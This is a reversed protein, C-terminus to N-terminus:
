IMDLYPVSTKKSAINEVQKKVYLIISITFLINKIIEFIYTLFWYKEISHYEISNALINFFFSCSLYIMIGILTWFWYRDYIYTAKNNDHFQEYFAYSIYIFILISEIGIPISDLNRTKSTLFYVVQFLLFLASLTTIIQKFKSNQVLLWILCSFFFYEIFTYITTYLHRHHRSLYEDFFLFLFFLLSYVGIISTFSNRYKYNVLFAIVPLLFSYNLIHFFLREIVKSKGL